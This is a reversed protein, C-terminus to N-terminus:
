DTCAIVLTHRTSKTEVCLSDDVLEEGSVAGVLSLPLSLLCASSVESMEGSSSSNVVYNGNCIDKAKDVCNRIYECEIQSQTPSILSVSASNMNACAQTMLGILIIVFCRNM